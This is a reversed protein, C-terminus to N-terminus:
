AAQYRQSLDVLNGSLRETWRWKQFVVRLEKLPQLMTAKVCSGHLNSREHIVRMISCVEEVTGEGGASKAALGEEPLTGIVHYLTFFARAAAWLGRSGWRHNCQVGVM